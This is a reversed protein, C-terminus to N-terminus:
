MCRTRTELNTLLVKILPWTSDFDLDNPLKTITKSDVQTNSRCKIEVNFTKISCTFINFEKCDKLTLRFLSSVLHIQSKSFLLLYWKQSNFHVHTCSLAFLLM